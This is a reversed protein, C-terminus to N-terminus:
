FRPAEAVMMVFRAEVHEIPNPRWTAFTIRECVSEKAGDSLLVIMAVCVVMTCFNPPVETEV